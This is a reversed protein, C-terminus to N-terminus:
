KLLEKASVILKAAVKPSIGTKDSLTEAEVSAISGVTDFGAKRLKGETVKGVGKIEGIELIPAEPGEAEGHLQTILLEKYDPFDEKVKATVEKRTEADYHKIRPYERWKEVFWIVARYRNM